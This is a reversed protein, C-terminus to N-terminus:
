QLPFLCRRFASEVRAASPLARDTLMSSLLGSTRLHDLLVVITFAVILRWWYRIEINDWLARIDGTLVRYHVLFNIGGLMMFFALAYEILRYHAHGSQRYFEISADHPSFGGTSVATFAHCVSDFVPMRLIALIAIAGLTFGGYIVLRPVLWGRLRLFYRLAEVEESTM